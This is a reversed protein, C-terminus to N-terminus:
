AADDMPRGCTPCTEENALPGEYCRMEPNWTVVVDHRESFPLEDRGLRSNHPGVRNEKDQVQHRVFPSRAEMLSVYFKQRDHNVWAYKKGNSARPILNKLEESLLIEITQGGSGYSPPHKHVAVRIKYSKKLM